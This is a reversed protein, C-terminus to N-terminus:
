RKPTELSDALDPDERVEIPRTGMSGDRHVEERDPFIFFSLGFTAELILSTAHFGRRGRPHLHGQVPLRRHISHDGEPSVAEYFASGLVHGANHAIVKLDDVRIKERYFITYGGHSRRRYTM